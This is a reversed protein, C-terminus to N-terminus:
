KLYLFRPQYEHVNAELESLGNLSDVSYSVVMGNSSTIEPHFTSMYAIENTYESIEPITYIATPVSWPGQPTCAYSIDLTSGAGGAISAAMYSDNSLAAVGTLENTTPIISAASESSVWTTGNWYQWSSTTLTKNFPVRALKMGTGAWGYIYNYTSDKTVANGWQTNTDTPITTISSFSPLGNTAISMVAIGSNGTFSDFNSGSVPTFQNVFILQKGNESYTAAVQWQASNGNSDTILTQPASFTGGYDSSLSPLTGVLESNHIFGTLTAIGSTTATGILTDSFDFAEQGDPLLTSYAVDGGIWGPGLQGSITSDLSTDLSVSPLEAPQCFPPGVGFQVAGATSTGTTRTISATGSLQGSESEGSIYPTVAHSTALYHVGIVVVVVIVVPGILSTPKQKVRKLWSRM